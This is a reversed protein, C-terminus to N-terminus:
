TQYFSFVENISSKWKPDDNRLLHTHHLTGYTRLLPIVVSKQCEVLRRLVDVDELQSTTRIFFIFNSKTVSKAHTVMKQGSTIVDSFSFLISYFLYIWFIDWSLKLLIRAGQKKSNTEQKVYSVSSIPWLCKFYKVSWECSM